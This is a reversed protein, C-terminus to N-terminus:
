YSLAAFLFDNRERAENPRSGHPISGDGRVWCALGSTKWGFITSNYSASNLTSKSRLLVELEFVSSIQIYSSSQSWSFVSPKQRSNKRRLGSLGLKCRVSFSSRGSSKSPRFTLLKM